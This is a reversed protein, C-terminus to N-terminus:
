VVDDELLGIIFDKVLFFGWFLSVIGVAGVPAMFDKIKDESYLRNLLDNTYCIEKKLGEINNYLKCLVKEIYLIQSIYM